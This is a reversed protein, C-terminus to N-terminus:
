LVERMFQMFFYYILQFCSTSIQIIIRDRVSSSLKRIRTKLKQVAMPRARYCLSILTTWSFFVLPSTQPFWLFTFYRIRGRNETNKAKNEHFVIKLFLIYYMKKMFTCCGKLMRHSRFRIDCCGLIVRNCLSITITIIVLTYQTIVM